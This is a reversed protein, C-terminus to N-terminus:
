INEVVRQALMASISTLMEIPQYYVSNKDYLLRVSAPFENDADQFILLVKVQPLFSIIFATDGKNIEKGGITKIIHLVREKQKTYNVRLSELDKEDFFQRCALAGALNSFNVWEAAIGVDKAKSYYYLYPVLRDTNVKRDNLLDYSQGTDFILRFSLVDIRENGVGLRSKLTLINQKFNEWTWINGDDSTSFREALEKALDMWYEFIDKSM